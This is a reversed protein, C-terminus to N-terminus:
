LGTRGGKTHIATAAQRGSQPQSRGEGSPPGLRGCTRLGPQSKCSVATTHLPTPHPLPCEPRGTPPNCWDGAFILLSEPLFFLKLNANCVWCILSSSTLCCHQYVFVKNSAFQINLRAQGLLIGSQHNALFGLGQLKSLCSIPM